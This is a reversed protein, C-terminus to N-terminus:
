NVKGDQDSDFAWDRGVERVRMPATPDYDDGYQCIDVEHVATGDGSTDGEMYIASYPPTHKAPALQGVKWSLDVASGSSPAANGGPPEDTYPNPDDARRDAVTSGRNVSADFSRDGDQLPYRNSM